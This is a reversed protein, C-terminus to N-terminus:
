KSDAGEAHPVLEILENWDIEGPSGSLVLNDGGVSVAVATAEGQQLLWMDPTDCFREWQGASWKGAPKVHMATSRLGLMWRQWDDPADSFQRVGLFNGSEDYVAFGPGQTLDIVEATTEIDVVEIQM